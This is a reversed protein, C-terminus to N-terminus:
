KKRLFKNFLFKFYTTLSLDNYSKPLYTRSPFQNVFHLKHNFYQENKISKGSGQYPFSFNEDNNKKFIYILDINDIHKMDIMKLYSNDIPTFFFNEKHTFVLSSYISTYNNVAAINEFFSIDFNYFGNGGFVSQNILFYGNKKCLNHMTKYTETINFPHENNGFDTVLDYQGIKVQENIPFNLDVKFFNDIPDEKTRELQIIDLRDTVKLGFIKWLVSSSLRPRSPFSKACNLSDRFKELEMYGLNYNLEDYNLNLDQDGMDIVSEIEGFFNKKHLDCLLNLIKIDLAM